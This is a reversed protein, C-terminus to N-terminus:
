SEVAGLYLELLAEAEQRDRVDIKRLSIVKRLIKTDFGMSKAEAYVEKMDAMVNAKDEELREIRAVFAKIQERAAGGISDSQDISGTEPASDTFAM